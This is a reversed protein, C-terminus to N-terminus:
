LACDAPRRFPPSVLLETWHDMCEQAEIFSQAAYVGLDGANVMSAPVSARVCKRDREESWELWNQCSSPGQLVPGIHEAVVGVADVGSMRVIMGPERSFSPRETRLYRELM